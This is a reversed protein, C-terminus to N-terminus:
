RQKQHAFPEVTEPAFLEEVAVLRPSLGQEFSWCTAAELTPRNPAIGYPFPDGGFPAWETELDLTFWPLSCYPQSERLREYAAAKAKEFAAVLNVAIWRHAEYAQRRIAVVHMIPFIRTRRYYDEEVARPDAILRRLRPRPGTAAPPVRTTVAADIRGDLLMDDLSAGQPADEIRVSPASYEVREPRSRVWTVDGPHVGHEHSLLGRVFLMMTMSYEPIGVRKGALDEPRTLESDSRVWLSSQRFTRHPFVPIAIFRSKGHAMEMIYNSLSLEAVDFEEHRLMRWFLEAAPMVKVPALDVGEVRVQGELIPRIRDYDGAAFSLSPRAM